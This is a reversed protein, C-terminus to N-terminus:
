KNILKSSNLLFEKKEKASLGMINMCYPEIKSRFQEMKSLLKAPNGGIISNDPFSKTVISGAGVICNCGLRVGPLIIARAGIFCNDGIEIKGFVDTYKPSIKCVSNDHNILQVNNSITVNNGIIVLYPESTLINSYIKCGHGISMGKKRFFSLVINMDHGRLLYWIKIFFYLLNGM